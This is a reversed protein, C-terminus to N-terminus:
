FNDNDTPFMAMGYERSSELTEKVKPDVTSLKLNNAILRLSVEPILVTRVWSKPTLSTDKLQNPAKPHLFHSHLTQYIIELSQGGYSCDLM